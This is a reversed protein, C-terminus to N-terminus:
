EDSAVAEERGRASFTDWMKQQVGPTTIPTSGTLSRCSYGHTFGRDANGKFRRGQLGVKNDSGKLTPHITPSVIRPRRACFLTGKGV